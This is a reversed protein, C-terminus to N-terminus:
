ALLIPRYHWYALLSYAFLPLLFLTVFFGFFCFLLFLFCTAELRILEVFDYVM